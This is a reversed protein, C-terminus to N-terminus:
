CRLFLFKRTILYSLLDFIVEKHLMIRTKLVDLPTTLGAAIGGSICGSVAAEFANAKPKATRKAQWRKMAEYLPFQIMTFPVERMVTIGFGRYLGRFVNENKAALIEKFASLSSHEAMAQARQKVVETPVRIICSGVEGFAGAVMHTLANSTETGLGIRSIRPLFFVNGYEYVTFFIAGPSHSFTWYLTFGSPASGMSVSGIGKYIGHWGGNPLFGGPAQLRTKLTDIPFLSIDVAVGAFAGATAAIPDVPMSKSACFLLPSVCQFSVVRDTSLQFSFFNTISTLLDTVCYFELRSAAYRVFFHGAAKISVPCRLTKSCRIKKKLCVDRAWTSRLANSKPIHM